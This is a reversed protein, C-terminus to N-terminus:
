RACEADIAVGRHAATAPLADTAYETMADTLNM